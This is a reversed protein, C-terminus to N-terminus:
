NELLCSDEILRGDVWFFAAVDQGLDEVHNILYNSLVRTNQSVKLKIGFSKILLPSCSAGCSAVEAKKAM